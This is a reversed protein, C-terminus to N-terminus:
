VQISRKSLQYIYKKIFLFKYKNVSLWINLKVAAGTVTKKLPITPDFILGIWDSEVNGIETEIIPIAKPAIMAVLNILKIPLFAPKIIADKTLEATEIKAAYEIM